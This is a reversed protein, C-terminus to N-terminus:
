GVSILDKIKEITWNDVAFSRSLDWISAYPGRAERYKVIMTASWTGIYPLEVMEQITARNVNLLGDSTELSPTEEPLMWDEAPSVPGVTILHKIQDITWSDIAGTQSLDWIESFPGNHARYEVVVNASWVGIYPLAELQDATASNINIKNNDSDGTVSSDNATPAPLSSGSLGLSELAARANILGSGLMGVYSPNKDDLNTATSRIIDVASEATLDPKASLLLAILGAVHPAAFSTGADYAYDNPSSAVFVGIGSHGSEGGPASVSVSNLGYYSYSAKKGLANVAAVSVLGPIKRKETVDMQTDGPHFAYQSPYHMKDPVQTENIHYNGASATIAYGKAHADFLAERIGIHEGNTAWSINLVGRQGAPVYDIAERIAAARLGYSPGFASGSIKVPLLWCDPAVGTVRSGGSPGRGTAISAVKTGHAIAVEVPSMEAEPVGLDYNLDLAQWDPRLANTLDKHDPRIGSDVVIITVQPSGKIIAHAANIDIAELNWTRSGASADEFDLLPKENLPTFDELGVETPEAFEIEPQENASKIKKFTAATLHLDKPYQSLEAQYYGVKSRSLKVRLGLAGLIELARRQSVDRKFWVDIM